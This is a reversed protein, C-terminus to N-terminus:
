SISVPPNCKDHGDDSTDNARADAYAETGLFCM